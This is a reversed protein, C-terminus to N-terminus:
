GSNLGCRFGGTPILAIGVRADDSAAAPGVGVGVSGVAGAVAVAVLAPM